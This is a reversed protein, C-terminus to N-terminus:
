SKLRRNEVALRRIWLGFAILLVTAAVALVLFLRFWRDENRKVEKQLADIWAQREAAAVSQLDQVLEKRQQKLVVGLDGKLADAVGLMAGESGARLTRAIAASSGDLTKNLVPSLDRSLTGQIARGIGSAIGDAIAREIRPAVADTATRAVDAALRDLKGRNSDALIQDLAAQVSKVVEARVRPLVEKDLQEGFVPGLDRVLGLALDHIRARREETTLEDLSTDVATKTLERVSQQVQESKLLEEIRQRNAPENLAKLTATLTREAKLDLYSCGALPFGAACLGILLVATAAGAGARWRQLAVGVVVLSVGLGVLSLVRDLGGLRPVDSLFCKLVTALLLALAAGRAAPWRLLFGGILLGTAIVAWWLTYAVNEAPSSAAFDFTLAGNASHYWSAILINLLFWIEFLGAVSLLRQLPPADRRALYAAAFMAVGCLVYVTWHAYLGADFALWLFIGAAVAAAWGLLAGYAFRTFLWVLVAVEVACAVVAWASPLLMPIAANLLALATSTVLVLRPEPPRLSRIRWLLVLMALAEVLPVLGIAWLHAPEVDGRVGWANLFLVLSALAAAIHPARSGKAREGLAIASALFLAYPVAAILLLTAAPSAWGAPARAATIIIAVYFPIALVALVHRESLWAVGFLAAFLLAHVVLALWLPPQLAMLAISSLAIAIAGLVTRGRLVTVVLVAALLALMAAIIAAAHDPEHVALGIFVLFLLHAFPTVRVLYLAIFLALWVLVIPWAPHTYSVRFWVVFTLLTAIGGAAYLWKPGGRRVLVQIGYDVFFLFLFLLRFQPGYNPHAAVWLAFLLPMVAAAAACRQFALSRTEPNGYWLPVTGVVAFAMFIGAALPLWRPDLAQVVWGWEFIATLAVSLGLLWAWGQRLAIWATGANLLLLYGFAAPYSESSSLLATTVYGGALGLLAIYIPGRRTSLYLAAVTVAALGLFAVPLPILHWRAQMAYVTAYLIAIGAADVANATVPYRRAIQLGSVVLLAVGAALGIGARLWESGGPLRFLVVAALALAIGAIWSFFRVGISAWESKTLPRRPSPPCTPETM